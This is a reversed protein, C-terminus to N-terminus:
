RMILLYIIWIILVIGSAIGNMVMSAVGFKDPEVVLNAILFVLGSLIIISLKWLSISLM